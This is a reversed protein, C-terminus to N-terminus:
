TGKEWANDGVNSGRPKGASDSIDFKDIAEENQSIIAYPDVANIHLDRSYIFFFTCFFWM